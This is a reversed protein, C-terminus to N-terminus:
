SNFCMLIISTYHRVLIALLSIQVTTMTLATLALSKWNGNPTSNMAERNTMITGGDIPNGNADNAGEQSSYFKREQNMFPYSTYLPDVRLFKALATNYIRFEYDYMNGDGKLSKDGIEKGNFGYRCGEGSWSSGSIPVAFALYDQSSIDPFKTKM